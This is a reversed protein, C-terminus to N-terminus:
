CYSCMKCFLWKRLVLSFIYEHTFSVIVDLKIPTSQIWEKGFHWKAQYINYKPMSVYVYTLYYSRTFGQKLDNIFYTFLVLFSTNALAHRCGVIDFFCTCYLYKLGRNFINRRESMTVLLTFPLFLLTGAPVPSNRTKM